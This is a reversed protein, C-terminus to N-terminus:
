RGVNKQMERGIRQISKETLYHEKSLESVNRGALYEIYIKTNRQLLSKKTGSLTGWGARTRKKPVYIMQGEAYEQLIRVLEEPLIDEARIYGM